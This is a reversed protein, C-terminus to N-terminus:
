ETGKSVRLLLEDLLHSFNDVNAMSWTGQYPFSALDSQNMRKDCKIINSVKAFSREILYCGRTSYITLATLENQLGVLVKIWLFNVLDSRSVIKM